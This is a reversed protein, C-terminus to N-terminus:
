RRMVRRARRAISRTNVSSSSVTVAARTLRRGDGTSGRQDGPRRAPEPLEEGFPEGGVPEVHDQHRAADFGHFREGLADAGAAVDVAVTIAWSRASGPAAAASM